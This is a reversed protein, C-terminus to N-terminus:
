ATAGRASHFAHGALSDLGASDPHAPQHLFGTASIVADFSDTDGSATTPHWRGADYDARVMPRNFRTLKAVDYKAVVGALYAQIEPGPSFLPSWEPNPEFACTDRHSPVDRSLGPYRNERRTGDIRDAKQYIVVEGCGTERPKIGCLAGSM